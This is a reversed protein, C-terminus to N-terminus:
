VYIMVDRTRIAACGGYRSGLVVMISKHYGQLQLWTRVSICGDQEMLKSVICAQSSISVYVTWTCVHCGRMVHM